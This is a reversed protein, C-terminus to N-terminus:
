AVVGTVVVVVGVGVAVVAAVVLVLEVSGFPLDFFVRGKVPKLV